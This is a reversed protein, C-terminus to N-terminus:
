KEPDSKEDPYHECQVYEMLIRLMNIGYLGATVNKTKFVAKGDKFQGHFCHLFFYMALWAAFGRKLPNFQYTETPELTFWFPPDMHLSGAGEQASLAKITIEKIKQYNEEATPFWNKELSKVAFGHVGPCLRKAEEVASAEGFIALFKVDMFSALELGIEGIRIGNLTIGGIPPSQITHSAFGRSGYMAYMGVMIIGYPAKQTMRRAKGPLYPRKVVRIYGPLQELLVNFVRRGNDHADCLVIEDVGFEVSAECVARVDSTMFARGQLRWAQSGHQMAKQNKPSIQSIGEMDCYLYLQRKSKM